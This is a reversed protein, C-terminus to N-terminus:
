NDYPRWAGDKIRIYFTGEYEMMVVGSNEAVPRTEPLNRAVVEPQYLGGSFPAQEIIGYIAETIALSSTTQTVEIPELEAKQAIGPGFLKLMVPVHTLSPTPIERMGPLQFRDGALGAGHEPVMVVLVAKGSEEIENFLRNFDDLMTQLRQKYSNRSVGTFGNLQNGDHLSTTNYFTFEPESTRTNLWDELIAYDSFISSQDFSEMTIPFRKPNVFPADQLGGLQQLETLYNDFSGTHNMRIEPSYGLSALQHAINCSPIPMFIDKHPRHGCSAQLLRLTSPGSYSSGSYYNTFMIDARKLFPHELMDFAELDSWSVSCVNLMLIDFAPTTVPPATLTQQRQAQYFDQLIQAPTQAAQTGAAGTQQAAGNTNVLQTGAIPEPGVGSWLAVSLLAALTITTMRLFKALYLYLICSILFGAVWELPVLRALLEFLYRASFTRILDWQDLLRDFPPLNSESYLLATAAALAILQRVVKLGRIHVPLVLFTFLSFNWLLQLELMGQTVLAVKLLFYFSWAGLGPWSFVPHHLVQQRQMSYLDDQM